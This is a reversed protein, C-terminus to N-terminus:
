PNKRSLSVVTELHQTYPFMDIPQIKEARYGAKCLEVLDRAQTEPNCSIYVIRRPSLRILAALFLRDSGSRPPDMFVVDPALLDQQNTMRTLFRGADEAFFRANRIGNRKGNRIADRVADRNSEVGAVSAGNKAAVLGITGTGCYADLVRSDKNLKAADIAQRYLVNTQAPNVQYFSSPSILFRCGCLEDEIYGPGWLTKFKDGLVASNAKTNINQVITTVDPCMKRLQSVFSHSSPLISYPTVLTVMVQGTVAGRRVVAHRLLGTGNDEDFAEYRCMAAALRVSSAVEATRSDELLCQSTPLVRHSKEAYLGSILSGDRATAFTTVVKCRYHLPKEAGIIPLVKGFRKLFKEAVAQKQRLQQAYDLELMDCGGCGQQKLNCEM